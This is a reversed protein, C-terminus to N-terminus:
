LAAYAARQISLFPMAESVNPSALAELFALFVVSDRDEIRLKRAMHRMSVLLPEFASILLGQWVKAGTRRHEAIMANVVAMREATPSAKSKFFATVDEPGLFRKLAEYREAGLRFDKRFGTAAREIARITKTFEM